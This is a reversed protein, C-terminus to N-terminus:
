RRLANHPPITRRVLEAAEPPMLHALIAVIQASPDRITLTRAVL